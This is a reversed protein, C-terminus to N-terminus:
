ARICTFKNYGAASFRYNSNSPQKGIPGITCAAVSLRQLPTPTGM